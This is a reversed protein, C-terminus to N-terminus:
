VCGVKKISVMLHSLRAKRKKSGISCRGLEKRRVDVM